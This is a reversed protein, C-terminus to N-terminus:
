ADSRLALKGIALQLISADWELAAMHLLTLAGLRKARRRRFPGDAGGEGFRLRWHTDAACKTRRSGDFQAM